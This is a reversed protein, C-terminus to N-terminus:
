SFSGLEPASMTQHPKQRPLTRASRHHTLHRPASAHLDPAYNADQCSWLPLALSPRSPVARPRDHKPLDSPGNKALGSEARWRAAGNRCATRICNRASRRPRIGSQLSRSWQPRHAWGPLSGTSTSWPGAFAITGPFRSQHSMDGDLRPVPSRLRLLPSPKPFWSHFLVPDAAAAGPLRWM